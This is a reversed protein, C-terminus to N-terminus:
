GKRNGLFPAAPRAPGSQSPRPPAAPAASADPERRKIKDKAPFDGKAAETDVAGICTRGVMPTLSSGGVCYAQMMRAVDARGRAMVKPDAHAVVYRSFVKRGVHEPGVITEEIEALTTTPNNKSPKVIARTCELTYRGPPILDFSSVDVEAADFGLNGTDANDDNDWSSM